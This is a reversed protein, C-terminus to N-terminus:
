ILPIAGHVILARYIGIKLLVVRSCCIFRVNM